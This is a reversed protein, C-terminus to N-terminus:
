EASSYGIQSSVNLDTLLVAWEVVVDLSVGIWQPRCTSHVLINNDCDVSNFIDEFIDEFINESNTSM